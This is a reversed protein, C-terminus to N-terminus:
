FCYGAQSAFRWQGTRAGRRMEFVRDIGALDVNGNVEYAPDDDVSGTRGNVEWAGGPADIVESWPYGGAENCPGTLRAYIVEGPSATTSM